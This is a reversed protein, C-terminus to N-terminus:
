WSQLRAVSGAKVWSGGVGSQLADCLEEGAMHTLDTLHYAAPPHPAAGSTLVVLLEPGRSFAFTHRDM